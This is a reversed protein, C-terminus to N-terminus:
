WANVEFPARTDDAEGVDAIEVEGDAGAVGTVAERCTIAITV